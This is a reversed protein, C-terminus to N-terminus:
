NTLDKRILRLGGNTARELTPTNQVHKSNIICNQRLPSDCSASDVIEITQSGTNANGFLYLLRVYEEENTHM